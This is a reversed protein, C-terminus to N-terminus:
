ITRAKINSLGCFGNIALCISFFADGHGEDTEPAQLASDVSLIQRKQRDDKLFYIRRESLLIDLNTAMTFKNKATFVVGEMGDPLEGREYANEFEARTNDYLLRQVKFVLMMETLYEIQDKYDWGDM